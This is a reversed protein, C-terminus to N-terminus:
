CTPSILCIIYGLLPKPNHYNECITDLEQSAEDLACTHAALAPSATAPLITFAALAAGVITIRLKKM